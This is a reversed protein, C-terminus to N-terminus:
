KKDVHLLFDLKQQVKKLAVLCQSASDRDIMSSQAPAPTMLRPFVEVVFAFHTWQQIFIYM